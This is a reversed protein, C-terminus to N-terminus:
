PYDESTQDTNPFRHHQPRAGGAKGDEIEDMMGIEGFSVSVLFEFMRCKLWRKVTDICARLPLRVGEILPVLLYSLRM